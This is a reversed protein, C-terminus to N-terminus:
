RRFIRKMRELSREKATIKKEGFVILKAEKTAATKLKTIEESADKSDLSVFPVPNPADAIVYNGYLEKLNQAILKDRQKVFKEYQESSAIEGTNPNKLEFSKIDFETRAHKKIVDEVPQLAQNYMKETTIKSGHIARIARFIGSVGEEEMANNVERAGLPTLLEKPLDQISVPDGKLNEGMYLDALVGPFPAAKGRLFKYNEKLIDARVPEGQIMKYGMYPLNIVFFKLIPAFRGGVNDSVGTKKNKINGFGTSRPDYDVEYDDNLSFALMILAATSTARAMRKLAFNRVEKDLSRYYGKKGLVFNVFDGIGLLNFSSAMMRPAWIFASVIGSQNELVSPLKGRGSMENLVRAYDKYIKESNEITRGKSELETVIQMFARMRVYNGAATAIREFPANIIKAPIIKKDGIKIQRELLNTAGMSEDRLKERFSKPDLVDLGSKEIIDWLKKDEHLAVIERNFRGENFIVKRQENLIKPLLLPNALVEPYLQVLIYSNDLTTLIAKLTNTFEPYYKKYIKETLNYKSMEDKILSVEYEYKKDLLKTKSDYYSNLEEPYKKIFEPNELFSIPKPEKEFDGNKIKEDLEQIKRENKEKLANLKALDLVGLEKKLEKSQNRLEVIRQNREIKLKENKPMKGALLTQIESILRAEEKLDIKKLQIGTLPPKQKKYKGAIIDFIDNEVLDDIENRLDVYIKSVVEALTDVGEEIYLNMLKNVDPAIATLQKIKTIPLPVPTALLVNSPKGKEKWKQKISDIVSKKESKYDKTKQYPKRVKKQEEFADEALLKANLESNNKFKIDAEEQAKKIENYQKEVKSRQEDTLEDVLNARMKSVVFDALTERPDSVDALSRLQRGIQSNVIDNLQTYRILKKELEATPNADYDSKLKAIYIKRIQNEEPSPSYGQNVIKDLLKEVNYGRKLSRIASNTWQEFTQREREYEPLGLFQRREENAAITIAGDWGKTSEKVDETPTAEGEGAAEDGEVRPEV